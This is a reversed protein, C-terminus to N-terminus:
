IREISIIDKISISIDDLTYLINNKRTVIYTEYSNDKTKILVKKDYSYGEENFINDIVEMINDDETNDNEINKLVCVKKNNNFYKKNTKFLESHKDM